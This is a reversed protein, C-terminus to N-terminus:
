KDATMADAYEAPYLNKWYQFLWSKSKSDLNAVKVYRPVKKGAKTEAKADASMCSKCGKCAKCKKGCGPDKCCTCGAAEKVETDEESKKQDGDGERHKGAEPDNNHEKKGEWEPHGSSDGEDKEKGEAEKVETDGESEKKKHPSPTSEGKQHLPEVDLQGSSDGEDKEKSSAAGEGGADAKKAEKVEGEAKSETGKEGKDKDKDEEKKKGFPPAKKDGLNAINAEKTETVEETAQAEKTEAVVAATKVQKEKKSYTKKVFDAFSASKGTKISNTILKMFLIEQILRRQTSM